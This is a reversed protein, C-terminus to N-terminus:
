LIGVHDLISQIEVLQFIMIKDDFRLVIRIQLSQNLSELGNPNSQVFFMFPHSVIDVQVEILLQM